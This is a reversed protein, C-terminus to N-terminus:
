PCECQPYPRFNPSGPGSTTPLLDWNLSPDLVKILSSPLSTVTVDLLCPIHIV